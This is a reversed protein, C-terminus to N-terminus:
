AETRLVDDVYGAREDDDFKTLKEIMRSLKNEEVDTLLSAGMRALYLDRFAKAQGGDTVSQLSQMFRESNSQLDRSPDKFYLGPEDVHDLFDVEAQLQEPSLWHLHDVGRANTLRKM